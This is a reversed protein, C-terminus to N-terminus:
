FDLDALEQELESLKQEDREINKEIQEIKTRLRVRDGEDLTGLYQDNVAELEKERNDLKQHQRDIEKQIRDRKRETSSRSTNGSSSSLPQTVRPNNQCQPNDILEQEIRDIKEEVEERAQEKRRLLDEVSWELSPDAVVVRRQRLQRIQKNLTELEEKLENLKTNLRENKSSMISSPSSVKELDSPIVPQFRLCIPFNENLDDIRPIIPNQLNPKAREPVEDFLYNLVEFIRIYNDNSNQNARGKLADLLCDTFISYPEGVYSVQDKRSSAVVIRGSGTSLAMIMERTPPSKVLTEGWAKKLMGGAHCCDLWLILKQSQIANIKQTFEEGSISTTSYNAFNFGYPILFYDETEQIYGGHGSFYISVTSQPDNQAKLALQDLANLINERTAEQEKLLLINDQPYAALSPNVLVEYLAQVDKLTVPLDAGTGVLLAYGNIFCNMAKFLFTIADLLIFINWSVDTRQFIRSVRFRNVLNKREQYNSIQRDLILIKLTAPCQKDVREIFLLGHMDRVGSYHKLEESVIILDPPQFEIEKLANNWDNSFKVTYLCGQTQLRKSLHEYVVECWDPDPDVLLIRITSSSTM